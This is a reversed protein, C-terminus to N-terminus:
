AVTILSGILTIQLRTSAYTGGLIANTAENTATVAITNNLELVFPYTLEWFGTEQNQLTRVNCFAKMLPQNTSANVVRISIYRLMNEVSPETAVPIFVDSDDLGLAHFQVRDVAFPRSVNHTFADGAFDQGIVGAALDATGPIAYPLWSTVRRGQYEKVPVAM